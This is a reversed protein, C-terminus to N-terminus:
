GPEIPEHQFDVPVGTSLTELRQDQERAAVYEQLPDRFGSLQWFWLVGLIGGTRMWLVLDLNQLLNWVMM